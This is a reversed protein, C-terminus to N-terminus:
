DFAKEAGICNVYAGEQLVSQADKASTTWMLLGLFLLSTWTNM